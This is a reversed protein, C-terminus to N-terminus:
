QLTIVSNNADVSVARGWASNIAAVANHTQVADVSAEIFFSYNNYKYETTITIIGNQDETKETKQVVEALSQDITLFDTFPGSSEGPALVASRYLVTREDTTAGDKHDIIWEGEVFNLDIKKPNLVPSHIENGEADKWYKRVTVRVFEPISGTNRVSLVEPYKKGPVIKERYEEFTSLLVGHFNGQPGVATAIYDRNSVDKAEHGNCAEVLTVGIHEMSMEAGYLTSTITPVARAVGIGGFGLLVAALAFMGITAKPSQVFGAFRSKDNKRSKKM